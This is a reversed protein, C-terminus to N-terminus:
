QFVEPFEVGFGEGSGDHSGFDGDDGADAVFRVNRNGVQGGIIVGVSGGFRRLDDGGMPSGRPGVNFCIRQAQAALDIVSKIIAAPSQEGDLAVLNEAAGQLSNV